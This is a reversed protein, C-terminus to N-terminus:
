DVGSDQDMGAGTGLVATNGRQGSVDEDTTEEAEGDIHDGKPGRGPSKVALVDSPGLQEEEDDSSEPFSGAMRERM